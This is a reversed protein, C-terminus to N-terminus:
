TGPTAELAAIEAIQDPNLVDRYKSLVEPRSAETPRRPGLRALESPSFVRALEADRDTVLAQFGVFRFRDPYAAQMSTARARHAQVRRLALLHPPLSVAEDARTLGFFVDPTARPLTGARIQDYWASVGGHRLMSAVIQLAPRDPYLFITGPLLSLIEPVHYLNPHHQDLLVKGRARARLGYWRYHLRARLPLAQGAIASLAVARLTARHERGNLFDEAGPFERLVRCTFHTGSRGTGVVFIARLSM